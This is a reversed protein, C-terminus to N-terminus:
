SVVGVVGVVVAIFVSFFPYLSRRAGPLVPRQRRQFPLVGVAIGSKAFYKQWFFFLFGFGVAGPICCSVVVDVVADVAVVIFAVVIFAM